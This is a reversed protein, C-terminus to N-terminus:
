FHMNPWENQFYRHLFSDPYHHLNARIQSETTAAVDSDVSYVSGNEGRMRRNSRVLELDAIIPAFDVGECLKGVTSLSDQNDDDDDDDDDKDDDEEYDEDDDDDKDDEDPIDFRHECVPTFTGGPFNRIYSLYLQFREWSYVIEYILLDLQMLDFLSAQYVVESTSNVTTYHVERHVWFQNITDILFM